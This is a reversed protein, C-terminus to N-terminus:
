AAHGAVIAKGRCNPKLSEAHDPIRCLPTLAANPMLTTTARAQAMSRSSLQFLDLEKEPV